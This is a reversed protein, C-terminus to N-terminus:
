SIVCVRLVKSAKNNDWREGERGEEDGCVACWSDEPAKLDAAGPGTNV